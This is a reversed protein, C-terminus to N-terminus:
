IRQNGEILVESVIDAESKENRQMSDDGLSVSDDECPDLLNKVKLCLVFHKNNVNGVDMRSPIKIWPHHAEESTTSTTKLNVRSCKPQVRISTAAQICFLDPWINPVDHIDLINAAEHM